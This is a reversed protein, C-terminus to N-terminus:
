RKSCDECLPVGDRAAAELAAAQRAAAAAVASGAGGKPVSAAPPAGAPAAKGDLDGKAGMTHRAPSPLIVVTKGDVVQGDVFTM